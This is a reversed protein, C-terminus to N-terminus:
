SVANQFVENCMKNTLINATERIRTRIDEELYSRGMEMCDGFLKPLDFVPRDNERGLLYKPNFKPLKNTNLPVIKVTYYAFRLSIHRKKWIKGYKQM